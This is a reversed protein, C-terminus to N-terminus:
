MRHISEKAIPYRCKAIQEKMYVNIVSFVDIRYSVGYVYRYYM